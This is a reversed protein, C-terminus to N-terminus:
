LPCSRSYDKLLGLWIFSLRRSQRSCLTFLNRANGWCRTDWYTQYEWSTTSIDAKEFNWVLMRGEKRGWTGAAATDERWSVFVTIRQTDSQPSLPIWWDDHMGMIVVNNIWLVLHRPWPKSFVSLFPHTTWALVLIEGVTTPSIEKPRDLDDSRREGRWCCRSKREERVRQRFHPLSPTARSIPPPLHHFSRSRGLSICEVTNRTIKRRSPRLIHEAVVDRNVKYKCRVLFINPARPLTTPQPM